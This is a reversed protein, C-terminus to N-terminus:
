EKIEEEDNEPESEINSLRDTLSKMFKRALKKADMGALETNIITEALQPIPVSFGSRGIIKAASTFTEYVDEDLKINMPKM